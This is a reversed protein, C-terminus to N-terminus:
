IGLHLGRLFVEPRPATLCGLLLLFVVARGNIVVLRILLSIFTGDRVQDRAFKASTSDGDRRRTSLLTLFFPSSPSLSSSLSSSPSDPAGESESTTSSITQEEATMAPGMGIAM